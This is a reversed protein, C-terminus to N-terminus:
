SDWIAGYAPIGHIEMGHVVKWTLKKNSICIVAEANFDKYAKYALKVMDPKGHSDTNWIIANPQVELIEDVLQDGYTKRPNRTAWVLVSPVENALLHPICPGIGSGTAIWIVRKFLKEINGVGATPIGKVWVHSPLDDILAGTWDGARSITLRFGEKGPAPVNAFSHWERLPDRSITTSSGAFPTVGYDFNVLVVHSSPNVIEIPVKKLHLWPIIISITILGLLWFGLSTTLAERLDLTGKQADVFLFTQAWFLVLAIWGGFRHTLEFRNHKKARKKPLAMIVIFVLLGLIVYTIVMLALSVGPLNNVWNYTLSGVLIAFWITGSINGGMHIGGFHYIKAAAWRIKLPWNTPISTAIKFLINIVYQQRILIASTINIITINSIVNLKIGDKTWWNGTTIGYILFGINVIAIIAILRNYQMMFPHKWIRKYMPQKKPLVVAKYDVTEEVELKEVTQVIVNDM